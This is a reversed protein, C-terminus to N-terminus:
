TSALPAGVDAGCIQGSEASFTRNSTAAGSNLAGCRTSQKSTPHVMARGARNAARTGVGGDLAGGTQDSACIKLDILSLVIVFVRKKVAAEAASKM